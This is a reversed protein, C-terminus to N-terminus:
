IVSYGHESYHYECCPLDRDQEDKFLQGTNPDLNCSCGRRIHEECYFRNPDGSPYTDAPM